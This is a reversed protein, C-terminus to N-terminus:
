VVEKFEENRPNGTMDPGRCNMLDTWQTQDPRKNVDCIANIIPKLNPDNKWDRSGFGAFAFMFTVTVVFLFNEM